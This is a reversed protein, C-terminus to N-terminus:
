KNLEHEAIIADLTKTLASNVLLSALYQSNQNKAWEYVLRMKEGRSKKAM